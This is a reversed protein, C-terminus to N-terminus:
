ERQKITKVIQNQRPYIVTNDAINGKVVSGAGIVAGDGITTGRLITTNAGVWVNNGIVVDGMVWHNGRQNDIYSYDHDHDVIVVNPGFLCDDGIIIKNQATVSCGQNFFSTGIELLGGEVRFSVGRRTFVSHKLKLTGGWLM